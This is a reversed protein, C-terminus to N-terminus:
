RRRKKEPMLNVHLNPALAEVIGLVSILRAACAPPHRVGQLWNCLTGHPVGMYEAMEPQSLNLRNMALRITQATPDEPKTV